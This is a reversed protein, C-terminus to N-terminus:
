TTKMITRWISYLRAIIGESPGFVYFRMLLFNVAFCLTDAVLKSLFGQIHLWETFVYLLFISLSYSLAYLLFFRRGQISIHHGEINQFSWSRNLFFALVGGFIRSIMQAFIFNFGIFVLSTFVLWDCVASAVATVSYQPVQKFTKM